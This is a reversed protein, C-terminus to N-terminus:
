RLQHARTLPALEAERLGRRRRDPARVRRMRDARELRFGREPTSVGLLLDQGGPPRQADAEDRVAREPAPEQRALDPAILVEGRVVPPTAIRPKLTLVEGPVQLQHSPAGLQCPGVPTGRRRM